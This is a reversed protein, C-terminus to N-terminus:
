VCASIHYVEGYKEFSARGMSKRRQHNEEEIQIDYCRKCIWASSLQMTALGGCDCWKRHLLTISRRQQLAANILDSHPANLPVPTLCERQIMTIVDVALTVGFRSRKREQRAFWKDVPPLHSRRYDLLENVVVSDTGETNFPELADLQIARISEVTVPPNYPGARRLEAMWQVASRM